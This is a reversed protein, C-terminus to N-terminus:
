DWEDKAVEGGDVPEGCSDWFPRGRRLNVEECMVLRTIANRYGEALLDGEPIVIQPKIESEKPM